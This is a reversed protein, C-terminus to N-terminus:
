TQVFYSEWLELTVTDRPNAQPGWLETAAFAVTYLHEGVHLGEAGQDPLWHSGHHTIITGRANRAYAPLRSHDATTRSKTRITDGVSYLSPTTAETEFSVAGNKGIAVVEAVSLAKAPDAPSNVHGKTVEELTVVGGDILLMLYNTCWKNFYRFALYDKPVMRELGHRFWDITIGHAVGSRAIAWMRKEWDYRFPADGSEVPVPGFGQKGGLDHIGDM